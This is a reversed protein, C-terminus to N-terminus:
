SLRTGLRPSAPDVAVWPTLLAEGFVPLKKKRLFNKRLNMLDQPKISHEVIDMGIGFLEFHFDDLIIHEQGLGDKIKECESKYSCYALLDAAQLAPFQRKAGFSITGVVDQWPGPKEKIENFIRLADGANKHGQELIFNVSGNTFHTRHFAPHFSMFARFCLGYRTDLREKRAAGDSVYFLKYDEERLATRAAFIRKHEQLVYWLDNWLYEIQTDSWEKFEKQRHWLHKAHVHSIQHKRLVKAWEREFDVWENADGLFGALVTCPSGAHTGSEDCYVTLIMFDRGCPDRPYLSM